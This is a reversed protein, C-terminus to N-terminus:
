NACTEGICMNISMIGGNYNHSLTAVFISTAFWFLIKYSIQSFEHTHMCILTQGALRTRYYSSHNKGQIYATFVFFFCYFFFFKNSIIQPVNRYTTYLVDFLLISPLLITFKDHSHSVAMSRRGLKINREACKCM